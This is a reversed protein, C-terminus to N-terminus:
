GSKNAPMIVVTKGYGHKRVLKQAYAAPAESLPIEMDVFVRLKGSNLLQGMEVLQAQNPEVIFFADGLAAVVGSFEHGPTANSRATGDKNHSTPYWILETPTVGAAHVQILVDNKGPTPTPVETVGLKPWDAPGTLQVARM